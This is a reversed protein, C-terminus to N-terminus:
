KDIIKGKNCPSNRSFLYCKKNVREIELVFLINYM